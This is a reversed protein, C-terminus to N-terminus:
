ESTVPEHRAKIFYPWFKEPQRLFDAHEHVVAGRCKSQRIGLVDNYFKEKSHEAQQTEQKYSAIQMWMLVDTTGNMKKIANFYYDPIDKYDNGGPLIGSPGTQTNVMLNDILKEKVLLPWNQPLNSLDAALKIDPFQKDRLNKVDRYFENMLNGHLEIFKDGDFEPIFEDAIDKGYKDRFADMVPENFGYKLLEKRRFSSTHSRTSMFIGDVNYEMLEKMQSLFHERVEPYAYCPVGSLYEEKKRSVWQLHPNQIFYSALEERHRGEDNLLVWAYIKLDLKRCAAVAEKLPDCKTLAETLKNYRVDDKADRSSFIDRTKSHYMARGLFSVRWLVGDFGNEKLEKLSDFIEQQPSIGDLSGYGHPGIIFNDAYDINMFFIKKTLPSKKEPTKLAYVKFALDTNILARADENDGTCRATGQPYLDYFYDTAVAVKCAAQEHTDSSLHILYQSGVDLQPFEKFYFDVWEGDKSIKEAPVSVSCISADNWKKRIGLTIAGKDEPHEPGKIFVSIKTLCSLEPVYTQGVSFNKNLAVYEHALPQMCVLSLEEKEPPQKM